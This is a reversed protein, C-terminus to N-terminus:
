TLIVSTNKLVVALGQELAVQAREGVEPPLLEVQVHVLVVLEDAWLAVEVGPVLVRPDLVQPVVVLAGGLVQLVLLPDGGGPDVRLSLDLRELAFLAFKDGDGLFLKPFVGLNVDLRLLHQATGLTDKDRFELYLLM